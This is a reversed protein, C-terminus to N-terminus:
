NRAFAFRQILADKIDVLFIHDGSTTTTCSDCLPFEGSWLHSCGADNVVKRALSSCM